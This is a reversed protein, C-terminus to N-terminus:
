DVLGKMEQAYDFQLDEHLMALTKNLKILQRTYINSLATSSQLPLGANKMRTCFFIRVEVDTQKSGSYKIFKNATRLIKRLSKKVLYVNSRNIEEFMLAIMEKIEEVYAQEDGANFLLYTLLEKNEKKYRTMRMCLDLVEAPPLLELESKLEKLSAAKM